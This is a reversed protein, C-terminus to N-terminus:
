HATLVRTVTQESMDETSDAGPSQAVAQSTSPPEARRRWSDGYERVGDALAQLCTYRM